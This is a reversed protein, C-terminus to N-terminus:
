LDVIIGRKIAITVAHTRDHAGIKPLINQMHTKVTNESINLKTAILKNSHGAAVLQLVRLERESLTESGANEAVQAAVDPPIRRKGAHVMRIAEILDNRLTSKLLYGAAGARLAAVVLADGAFTTIVIIRAGPASRRISTIADLGNGDPMRLDMLTVDPQLRGHLDIASRGTDAQAVIQIDAQDELVSAIGERLLQHDDVIL